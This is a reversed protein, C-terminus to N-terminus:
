ILVTYQLFSWKFFWCNKSTVSLFFFYFLQYSHEFILSHFKRPFFCLCFCLYCFFVLCGTWSTWCRFIRCLFFLLFAHFSIILLIILSSKRFIFFKLKGNPFAEQTGLFFPCVWVLFMMRLRWFLKVWLSFCIFKWSPSFLWM